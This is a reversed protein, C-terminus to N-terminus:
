MPQSSPGSYTNEYTDESRWRMSTVLQAAATLQCCCSALWDYQRDAAAHKPGGDLQLVTSSMSGHPTAALVDQPKTPRRAGHRLLRRLEQRRQQQVGRLTM